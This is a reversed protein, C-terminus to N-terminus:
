TVLNRWVYLQPCRLFKVLPHNYLNKNLWPCCLIHVSFLWYVNTLQSSIFSLWLPFVTTLQLRGLRGSRHLLLWGLPLPHDLLYGSSQVGEKCIVGTLGGLHIYILPVGNGSSPPWDLCPAWFVALADAEMDEHHRGKHIWEKMHENMLLTLM